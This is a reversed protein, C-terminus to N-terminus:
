YGFLAMNISLSLIFPWNIKHFINKFIIQQLVQLKRKTLFFIYSITTITQCLSHSSLTIRNKLCSISLTNHLELYFVPRYHQDLQSSQQIDTRTTHCTHDTNNELCLWCKRQCWDFYNIANQTISFCIYTM